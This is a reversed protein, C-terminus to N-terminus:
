GGLACSTYLLCAYDVVVMFDQGEDILEFRGPAQPATALAKIIDDVAMGEALAATLAAMSNYVNFKGILPISIAYKQRQYAISFHMGKSSSSYDLLRFIHILSLLIAM